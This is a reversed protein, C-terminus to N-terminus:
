YKQTVIYYGAAMVVYSALTALAAGMINLYPILIYNAVVNTLAGLGAVIPAFISKRRHLNWCFFLTCAMLYILSYFLLSLICVVGTTTVL